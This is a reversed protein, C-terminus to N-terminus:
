KELEKTAQFVFTTIWARLRDIEEAQERIMKRLNRNEKELQQFSIPM